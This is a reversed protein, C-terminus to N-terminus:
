REARGLGLATEGQGHRWELRWSIFKSPVRPSRLESLSTSAWINSWLHSRSMPVIRVGERGSKQLHGQSLGCLCQRGRSELGKGWRVRLSPAM